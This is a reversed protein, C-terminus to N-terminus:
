YQEILREPKKVTRGYRTVYPGDHNSVSFQSPRQDNIINSGTELSCDVSLEPYLKRTFRRNRTLVRDSKDLKVYYCQHPATEVVRGHLTWKKTKQDQVIIHNGVVLMRLPRAKANYNEVSKQKLEAAKTEAENVQKQWEKSFTSRHVPLADQIPYGLLHKAPSLGSADPTNRYQLLASAWKDMDLAGKQSYYHYLTLDVRM